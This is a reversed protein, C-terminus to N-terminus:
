RWRTLIQERDFLWTGVRLGIVGIAGVLVALVVYGLAGVLITGTAQLIGVAVLPVIIVGGIQQGVRPDSVRASVVVGAVTSALGIAPGLVFVGALWSADLVVRFLAPGYAVSALTVFVAYTLWGTAVGPTLAAVTKGALLESTRIPTALVAELSRSQKEGIISFTAIALPVYAPMLLFYPLFQQITFAGTLERDTLSAWDPRQSLIQARFEPPLAEAPLLVGLLLPFTVLAIPPLVIGFLLMRNGLVERLERRIVAGIISTRM